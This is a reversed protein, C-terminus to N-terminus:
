LAGAPVLGLRWPRNRVHRRPIALLALAQLDQESEQESLLFTPIRKGASYVPYQISKLDVQRESRVAEELVDSLLSSDVDEVAHV